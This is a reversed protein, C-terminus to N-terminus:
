SCACGAEAVQRESSDLKGRAEDCREDDDGALDCIADASRRMSGLAACVRDCSAKKSLETAGELNPQVMLEGLQQEDREFAELAGSLTSLDRTARTTGVQTKRPSPPPPRGEEDAGPQADDDRQQAPPQAPAPEAYARPQPYAEAAGKEAQPSAAGGCGSLSPALLCPVVVLLRRM